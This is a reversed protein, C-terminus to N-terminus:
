GTACPSRASRAPEFLTSSRRGRGLRAADSPPCPHAKDAATVTPIGTLDRPRPDGGDVSPLRDLAATVRDRVRDDGGVVLSLFLAAGAALVIAAQADLLLDPPRRDRPRRLHLALASAPGSFGEWLAERIDDHDRLTAM